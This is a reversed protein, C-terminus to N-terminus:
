FTSDSNAVVYIFLSCLELLPTVVVHTSLYLLFHRCWEGWRVLSYTVHARPHSSPSWEHNVSSSM